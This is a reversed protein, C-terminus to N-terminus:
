TTKLPKHEKLGYNDKLFKADLSLGSIVIAAGLASGLSSDTTRLKMNRLYHSLLKIYVDNDTFGGDIYLRKIAQNGIASKISDVQLLVLELMLQHYAQEFRDYPILTKEPGNESSISIWKFMTEFDKNIKLFTDQDFKVTRHYDEPLKFHAALSKVQVKYESGLFLRAIRVPSSGIRMNFLSENHIDELTLM